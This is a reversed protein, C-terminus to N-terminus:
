DAGPRYISKARSTVKPYLSQADPPAAVKTSALPSLTTEFVALEPPGDRFISGRTIRGLRISQLPGDDHFADPPFAAFITEILEKRVSEAIPTPAPTDPIGAHLGLLYLDWIQTRQPDDGAQLQDEGFEFARDADFAFDALGFRKVVHGLLVDTWRELRRRLRDLAAIQDLSVHPGNVMLRLALKRAELQGILANRALPEAECVGRARDGATLIAGWVRAVLETVFVETLVPETRAWVQPRESAAAANAEEPYAALRNIWMRQAAKFCGWYRTLAERPPSVPSEIVHPSYISALATLEILQRITLEAETTPPCHDTPM